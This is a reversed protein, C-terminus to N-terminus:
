TKEFFMTRVIEQTYPAVFPNAPLANSKQKTPVRMRKLFEWLKLMYTDWWDNIDVLGQDVVGGCLKLKEDNLEMMAMFEEGNKWDEFDRKIQEPDRKKRPPM